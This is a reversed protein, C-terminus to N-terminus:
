GRGSAGTSYGLIGVFVQQAACSPRRNLPSRTICHGRDLQMYSHTYSVRESPPARTESQCPYARRITRDLAMGLARTQVYKGRNGGRWSCDLVISLYSVSARPRDPESGANCRRTLTLRPSSVLPRPTADVRLRDYRQTHVHCRAPAKAGDALRPTNTRRWRRRRHLKPQPERTLCWEHVSAAQSADLPDLSITITACM